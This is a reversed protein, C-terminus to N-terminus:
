ITLYEDEVKGTNDGFNNMNYLLSLFIFKKKVKTLCNKKRIKSFSLTMVVGKCEKQLLNKSLMPIEGGGMKINTKTKNAFSDDCILLCM